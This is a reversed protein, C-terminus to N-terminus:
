HTGTAVQWGSRAPEERQGMLLCHFPGPRLSRLSVVGQSEREASLEPELGALGVLEPTELLELVVPAPATPFGTPQRPAEM